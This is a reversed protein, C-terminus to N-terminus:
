ISLIKLSYAQLFNTGFLLDPMHLLVNKSAQAFRAHALSYLKVGWGVCYLDNQLRLHLGPSHLLHLLGAFMCVPCRQDMLFQAMNDLCQM